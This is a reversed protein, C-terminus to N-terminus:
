CNSTGERIPLHIGNGDHCRQEMVGDFIRANGFCLQRLTEAFGHGLQHFPQGFQIAQLKRALMFRLCFVEAFHQEGHRAIDADNQDFECITQM